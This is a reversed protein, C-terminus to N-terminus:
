ERKESYFTPYVHIVIHSPIDFCDRFGFFEVPVASWGIKFKRSGVSHVSTNVLNSCNQDTLISVIAGHFDVHRTVTRFRCIYRYSNWTGPLHSYIPRLKRCNYCHWRSDNTHLIRAETPLYQGQFVLYFEWQSLIFNVNNRKDFTATICWLIIPSYYILNKRAYTYISRYRSVAYHLKITFM